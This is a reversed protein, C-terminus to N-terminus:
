QKDKNKPPRGRRKKTIRHDGAIYAYHRSNGFYMHLIKFPMRLASLQAALDDATRASLVSLKFYPNLNSLLGDFEDPM